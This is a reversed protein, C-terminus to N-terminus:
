RLLHPAHVSGNAKWVELPNRARWADAHERCTEFVVGPREKMYGVFADLMVLRHGRGIFEPHLCLVYVGGDVTRSHTTSSARGSRM